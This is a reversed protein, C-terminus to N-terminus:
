SDHKKEGGWQGGEDGGVGGRGEERVGGKGRETEKREGETGKEKGKREKNGEKGGEGVSGEEVRKGGQLSLVSPQCGLGLHGPCPTVQFAGVDIECRHRKDRQTAAAFRNLIFFSKSLYQLPSM